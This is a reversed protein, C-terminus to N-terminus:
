DACENTNIPTLYRAPTISGDSEVDLIEELYAARAGADDAVASLFTDRDTELNM